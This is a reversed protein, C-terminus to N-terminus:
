SYAHHSGPMAAEPEDPSPETAAPVTSVPATVAAPAPRCTFGLRTMARTIQEATFDRRDQRTLIQGVQKVPYTRRSIIVSEGTVPEPKIGQMKHLVESKMLDFPFGAIICRM